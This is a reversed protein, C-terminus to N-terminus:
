KIMDFWSRLAQTLVGPLEDLQRVVLYYPFPFDELYAKMKIGGNALFVPTKTNLVSTKSGVDSDLIILITFIGRNQAEQMAQKVLDRGEVFLGKADSIILSLQPSNNFNLGSTTLYETVTRLFRNTNTKTQDFNLGSM